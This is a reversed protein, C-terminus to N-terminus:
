IESFCKSPNEAQSKGARRWKDCGPMDYVPCSWPEEEQSAHNSEFEAVLTENILWLWLWERDSSIIQLIIIHCALRAPTCTQTAFHGLSLLSLQQCDRWYMYQLLWHTPCAPPQTTPFMDRSIVMMLNNVGSSSCYDAMRKRECMVRAVPDVEM